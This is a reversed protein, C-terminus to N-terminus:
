IETTFIGTQLRHVPAKFRRTCYVLVPFKDKRGSIEVGTCNQIVVVIGNNETIRATWDCFRSWVRPLRHGYREQYLMRRLHGCTLIPYFLISMKYSFFPDVTYTDSIIYPLALWFVVILLLKGSSRKAGRGWSFAICGGRVWQCFGDLVIYRM